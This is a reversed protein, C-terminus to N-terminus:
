STVVRRAVGLLRSSIRLQSREAPVLAVDFRIKSEAAVFSIMIGKATASEVDSVTLLARGQAAGLIAALHPAEAAGIFLVHLGDLAADRALRRVEVPRGQVTRGATIRELEAAMAPAGIVGIGFPQGPALAQPPWEVFDGFKFLFAAKVELEGSPQAHACAVWALALLSLLAAALRRM